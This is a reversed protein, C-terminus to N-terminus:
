LLRKDRDSKSYNMRKKILGGYTIKSNIKGGKTKIKPLRNTGKKSIKFKKVKETIDTISAKRKM